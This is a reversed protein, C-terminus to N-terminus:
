IKELILMDSSYDEQEGFPLGVYMLSEGSYIKKSNIEMYDADKLLGQLKVRYIGKFVKGKIVYHFMVCKSKDESVFNWAVHDGEFPSALRYMDGKQVTNRIIKYTKIQERIVSIDEESAKGLDLEYGFQGAMAVNGRLKLPTTRALQHNPVASVHAGITSVPYCLSTGYQIFLREVADSDDSGWMQPFYSLMAPDFRGGGGSCGEFLVDPFDTVLRELIGYLNLYYRHSLEQQREESLYLSGMESANRNYDWKVYSIPAKKLMDAVSHYVFECVEPNSLDLFNQNRHESPFRGKIQIMWDPHKEFLESKKSIMEPEFWLGFKLGMDNIKKALGDIGNPLKEKNVFWDGLSSKDDNRKGFWGDDLVLLDMDCEKAKKATNLIKDETFDFFMAEWSNILIPREADRFKGRILRTRYLKHFVRSMEGIGEGSRVMILEPTSFTEDKALKWGFDFPNIGMLVRATGYSDVDTLASFNGSYLLNMGFVEGQTEDANKEAIAIFPNFFHSSTHRKSDIGQFGYKVPYRYIQRERGWSGTLQIMEYKENEFLNLAGSYASMIEIKDDSNNIIEARKSIVDIENFVTYFLKIKLNKLEDKLVIELTDAERDDETYVSPLGNIKPKGGYIKHSDYSLVTIRSGDSYKAHFAPTKLDCSGYCPFEMPLLDSSERLGIIDPTEFCAGELVPLFDEFEFEKSLKKGYYMHILFHDKYYGFIYSSKNTQLHFIKKNENYTIM